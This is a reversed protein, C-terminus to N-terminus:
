YFMRYAFLPSGSSVGRKAADPRPRCHKGIHLLSSASLAWVLLRMRGNLGFSGRECVCLVMNFPEYFSLGELPTGKGKNGKFLNTQEGTGRLIQGKNGQEGSIFARNGRNGLVGPLAESSLANVVTM